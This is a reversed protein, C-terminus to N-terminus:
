TTFVPSYNIPEAWFFPLTLRQYVRELYLAHVPSVISLNLEFTSHYLFNTSGKGDHHLWPPHQFGLNIHCHVSVCSSSTSSAMGIARTRLTWQLDVLLSYSKWLQTDNRSITISCMPQSLLVAGPLRPPPASLHHCWCQLRESWRRPICHPQFPALWLPRRGHRCNAPCDNPWWQSHHIASNVQVALVALTKTQTLIDAM